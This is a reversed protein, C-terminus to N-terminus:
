VKIKDATLAWKPIQDYEGVFEATEVAQRYKRLGALHYCISSKALQTEEAIEDVTKRKSPDSHSNQLSEVIKKKEMRTKKMEELLEPQIQGKKEKLIQLQIKKNNVM